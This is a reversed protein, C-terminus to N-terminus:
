RRIRALVVQIEGTTQLQVFVWKRSFRLPSRLKVNNMMSRYVLRNSISSFFILIYFLKKLVNIIMTVEEFVYHEHKRLFSFITFYTFFSNEFFITKSSSIYEEFIIKKSFIIKTQFKKEFFINEFSDFIFSFTLM